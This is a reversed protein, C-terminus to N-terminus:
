IIYTAVIGGINDAHQRGLQVETLSCTPFIALAGAGQCSVEDVLKQVSVLFSDGLTVVFTILVAFFDTAVGQDWNREFWTILSVDPSEDSM